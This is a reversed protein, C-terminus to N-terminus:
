PVILVYGNNWTRVVTDYYTTFYKSLQAPTLQTDPALDYGSSNAARPYLPGSVFVATITFNSTTAPDATATFGNMVWAHRGKWVLMGVPKNTLRMRTAAKKLASASDTFRQISYTAGGFRNLIAAWGAPNTGASYTGGDNAQGYVIYTSQSASSADSQGLTMNLMMQSSAAVCWTNTAQSAFASPRYFDLTGTGNWAPLEPAVFMAGSTLESRFGAADQITLRYRYCHSREMARDITSGSIALAVPSSWTVGSCGGGVAPASQEALVRSVIRSGFTDRQAFGIRATTEYNVVGDVYPNMFSATAGLGAPAPIIPASIVNQQGTATALMLIFRYCRDPPLGAAQYTTGTVVASRVPLWRIDCGSVGTPRSTQIAVTTSSVAVGPTITWSVGYSGTQLVTILGPVPTVFVAAPTAAAASNPVLTCIASALILAGLASYIRHHRHM